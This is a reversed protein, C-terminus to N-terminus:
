QAVARTHISGASGLAAGEGAEVGGEGIGGVRAAGERGTSDRAAVAGSGEGRVHSQSLALLTFPLNRDAACM